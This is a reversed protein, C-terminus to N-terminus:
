FFLNYGFVFLILSDFCANLTHISNNNNSACQIFSDFLHGKTQNEQKIIEHVSNNNNSACQILSDLLHGKTQNEQKIFSQM